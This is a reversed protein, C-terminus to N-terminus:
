KFLDGDIFLQCTIELVEQHDCVFIVYKKADLVMNQRNRDLFTINHCMFCFGHETQKQDFLFM